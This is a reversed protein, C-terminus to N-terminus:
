DLVDELAVLGEVEADAIRVRCGAEQHRRGVDKGRPIDVRLGTELGHAVGIMLRIGHRDRVLLDSGRGVVALVQLAHLDRRRGRAALDLDDPGRREDREIWDHPTLVEIRRDLRFKVCEQQAIAADARALVDCCGFWEPWGRKTWTGVRTRGDASGSGPARLWCSGSAREPRRCAKPPRSSCGSQPWGRRSRLARPCASSLPSRHTGGARPPM